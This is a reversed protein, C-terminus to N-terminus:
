QPKYVLNYSPPRVNYTNLNDEIKLRGVEADEARHKSLITTMLSCAPGALSAMGLIFRLVQSVHHTQSFQEGYWNKPHKMWILCTLMKPHIALVLVLCLFDPYQAESKL